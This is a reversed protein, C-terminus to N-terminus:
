ATRIPRPQCALALRRARPDDVGRCPQDKLLAHGARRDLFHAVSCVHAARLEVVVELVLRRQDACDDLALGVPGDARLLPEVEAAEVAQPLPAIEHDIVGAVRVPAATTRDARETGREGLGLGFGPCHDRRGEVAPLGADHSTKQPHM